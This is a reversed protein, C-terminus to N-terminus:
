GSEKSVIVVPSLCTTHQDTPVKETVDADLLRIVEQKIKDRLRYPIRHSKQTM